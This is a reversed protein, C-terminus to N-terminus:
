LFSAGVYMCIGICNRYRVCYTLNLWNNHHIEPFGHVFVAVDPFSEYHDVIYRLYVGAESGQNSSIYNPESSNLKQYLFVRM